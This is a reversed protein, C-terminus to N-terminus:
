KAKCRRKLGLLCTSNILDNIQALAEDELISAYIKATGYKGKIELM